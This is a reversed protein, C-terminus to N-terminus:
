DMRRNLGKADKTNIESNIYLEETLRLIDVEISMIKKDINNIRKGLIDKISKNILEDLRKKSIKVRLIEESM